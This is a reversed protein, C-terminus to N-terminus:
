VARPPRGRVEASWAAGLRDFDEEHCTFVLIQLRESARRLVEVMRARRTADSNVLADDLIVPLRRDGALVEALGLRVLVGLQERAGGSLQEFTEVVRTRGRPTSLGVVDGLDDFALTSGPFLLGLWREVAERVPEVFRGQQTGWAAELAEHARRIADAEAGVAAARARADALAQEADEVAEFLGEELRAALTARLDVLHARAAERRRELAELAAREEDAAAAARAGGAADFAAQQTAETALATALAERAAAHTARAAEVAGVSALRGSAVQLEDRVQRAAAAAQRVRESVVEARASAERAVAEAETAHTAAADSGARATAVDPVEGGDDDGEAGLSALAERLALLGDPALVDLARLHEHRRRELDRKDDLRARAEAVSGVGHTDLLRALRRRADDWALVLDDRAEEAPRLDLAITDTVVVRRVTDLPLTVQEGAALPRGDVTVAALATLVVTGTAADLKARAEDRVRAREELQAVDDPRLAVDDLEDQLKRADAEHRAARTLRDRLDDAHRRRAEREARTQARSLQEAARRAAGHAVEARQRAADRATRVTVLESEAATLAADADVRRAELSAVRAGLDLADSVRRAAEQEAQRALQLTRGQRTWADAAEAAVRARAAAATWTEAQASVRADLSHLHREADRVDASLRRTAEWRERADLLAREAAEVAEDVQVREHNRKGTPTWWRAYADALRERTAIGLPGAAILGTQGALTRELAARADSPLADRTPQGSQGQRVWVLPWIGLEDAKLQRNGAQRTGLLQRLRAEADSDRLRLNTGELETNPRDLFRKTVRWSEGTDDVLDVEVEPPQDSGWSWVERKHEAEGKAKEFLGFHLAEVLTSKGSENPGWFLCLRDSLREFKAERIGRFNRLSLRTLIM